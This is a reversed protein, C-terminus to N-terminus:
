EACFCASFDPPGVIRRRTEFFSKVIAPGEIIKTAFYNQILVIQGNEFPPWFMYVMPISTPEEEELATMRRSPRSTTASATTWAPVPLLPGPRTSSSIVARLPRVMWSM